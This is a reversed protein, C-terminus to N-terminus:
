ENLLETGYERISHTPLGYIVSEERKVAYTSVVFVELDYGRRKSSLLSEREDERPPPTVAMIKTGSQISVGTRFLFQAFNINDDSTEIRALIELINIAHGHGSKIPVIPHGDFESLKGTAVIGIEQKLGVFFFVLSAAVEIARNSMHERQAVPYDRESLNLLILVPFYISPSYEMAFLKGLRASVKWNIRKLPDGPIYERISRYRTVDEYLKNHVKINGSPLGKKQVLEVPYVTPYVIVKLRSNYTREWQFNGLPDRGKIYVPGLYYEGRDHGEAEYSLVKREGSKLDILFTRVDGSYLDGLTDMVSIYHFPFITKNRVVLDVRFRKHRNGYLVKETRTIELCMPAIKCYILGLLRVVILLLAIFRIERVPTFVFVILLFIPFLVDKPVRINRKM